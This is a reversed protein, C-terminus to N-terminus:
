KKQNAQYNDIMQITELDSIIDNRNDSIFKINQLTEGSKVEQTELYDEKFLLFYYILSEMIFVLGMFNNAKEIVKATWDFEQNEMQELFSNCYEFFDYLNIYFDVISKESNNLEQMKGLLHNSFNKLPRPIDLEKVLGYFTNIYKYAVFTLSAIETFDVELDPYRLQLKQFVEQKQIHPITETIEIAISFLCYLRIIGIERFSESESNDPILFSIERNNILRDLKTKIGDINKAEWLKTVEKLEEVDQYEISNNFIYLEKDIEGYLNKLYEARKAM